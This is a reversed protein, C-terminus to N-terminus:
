PVQTTSGASLAKRQGRWIFVGKTEPPMTIRGTCLDGDFELRGEIWGRPHPARVDMHKLPGPSPAIQLEKFGPATPRLGFLSARAHFLPHSGWAHCDSRSPEPSEVPTKMGLRMLDKWFGMKEVILDGRNRQQLVEFLYFSFYVTARSLDKSELLAKFCADAQAPALVGNLLALCQAHESFHQHQEDDALLSRGAVWFRRVIERSLEDALARNRAAMAPDGYAEEVEAGHRLAQVFFLNNISSIGKVGDPANGTQWAPVWDVFPWGALHELLGSPGRLTRFHELVGRIGVLREQVFAADDRWWVFDRLLSVWILSFTPSYQAGRGPYHEAVMEWQWATRSWDFLEIGRQPLRADPTMLYTTLMELRTDGVYMLQEYYPCDMYTEHACMQMGRVMLGHIANIGDDSSVFRGEDELPYRTELLGFREITLPEDATTVTLMVFRGARWWWTRYERGALGDNLFHDEYGPFNQGAVFGTFCKGVVEGRNGKHETPRGNADVQYLSEAWAVTVRSGKGGTLRIQPYATFYDGLDLLVSVETKAPVAVAGQGRALKIWDSNRETAECDAATIVRGRAGAGTLVARVTGAPFTTLKQDPLRSPHLRWGNRMLGFPNGQLPPLVVAPKVWDPPPGFLAAGDLTQASGINWPLRGPVFSWGKVERVRWGGSGTNLRAALDGEAAFIFGPRHTFQAGPADDGIWAVLASFRHKGPTLRVRYSAFSWHAVDGRDPGLSILRDDLSLEYRQDASVHFVLERAEALDFENEFRVAMKQDPRADPHWVWAATEIVYRQQINADLAPQAVPLTIRAITFPPNVESPPPTAPEAAAASAVCIHAIGAFVPSLHFLRNNM